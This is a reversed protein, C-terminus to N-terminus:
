PTSRGREPLVGKQPSPDALHSQGLEETRRDAYHDDEVVPVGSRRTSEATNGAAGIDDICGHRDGGALPALTM